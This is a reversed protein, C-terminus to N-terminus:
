QPRRGGHRRLPEPLQAYIRYGVVTAVPLIAVALAPDAVLSQM